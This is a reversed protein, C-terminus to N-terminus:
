RQPNTGQLFRSEEPAAPGGEAVRFKFPLSVLEMGINRQLAFHLHPGSSFGTNGSRALQQGARVRAGPRVSVSALDLHAYVAMTGDEHLVRVHNAKDLFIERDAGGRNFDEEVDMVTGDRVALVPTGVPMVIDLAYESDPTTHTRNGQFGQSIPFQQGAAFPPDLVIEAAPPRGPPGPVSAMQLKYQFGRRPDEAGIGLLTQETQGPIVFRAPLPPEALVNVADQLKLEIEVPGWFDNFVIYVPNEKPGEQRMRIRPEPEREMYVTEFQIDQEPARDTFHWIGNEDQYKYINAAAVPRPELSGLLAGTAWVAAWVAVRVAALFANKGTV